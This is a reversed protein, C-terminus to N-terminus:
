DRTTEAIIGVVAEKSRVALAHGNLLEDVACICQLAEGCLNARLNLDAWVVPVVKDVEVDLEPGCADLYSELCFFM